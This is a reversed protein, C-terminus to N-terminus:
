MSDEFGDDSETGLDADSATMVADANERMQQQAEALNARHEKYREYVFRGMEATAPDVDIHLHPAVDLVYWSQGATNTAKDTTLGFVNKWLAGKGSKQATTAIVNGKRYSTKSFNIHYIGSYDLSIIIYNQSRRCLQKEGNRWPLDPCTECKQTGYTNWIGDDSRCDPSRDGPQFRAHSIWRYIPIFLFPDEKGQGPQWLTRGSAWLAGEKADAPLLPDSTNSQRIKLYSPRWHAETEEMGEPVTTMSHFLEAISNAIEADVSTLAPLTEAAEQIMLESSM